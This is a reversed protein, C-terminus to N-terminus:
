EQTQDASLVLRSSEPSDITHVTMEDWPWRVRALRVPDGDRWGFFATASSHSWVGGGATVVLGQRAGSAHEVEVFAGVARPNGARGRLSIALGHTARDASQNRFALTGVNNRSAIFDARGDDDIDTAVLARADGRVVLGSEAPPVPVFGGRGDGRLLQSLGGAFRGVSPIPAYSNQLAYIDIFGDGDFDGTVAGQLPAIQALRPLAVFRYAGGPASLFVGSRLETAAFRQAAALRDEGVLEGITARAFDDNTPFRKLVSRIAAGFQRRGRWPMLREGDHRAELLQPPRGPEFSGHFLLAPHEPTARYPTNLGVNGAVIDCRGDGNFDAVALSSWWGTGAAAFGLAESRDTFGRGSDNRWVRVGGWELALVLDPWDDADVDCWL